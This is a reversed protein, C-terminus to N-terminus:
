MALLQLNMMQLFLAKGALLKHELYNLYSCDVYSFIMAYAIADAFCEERIIIKMLRLPRNTCYRLINEPPKNESLKYILHGLEHGIIYREQIENQEKVNGELPGLATKNLGYYTM